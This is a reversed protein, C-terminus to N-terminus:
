ALSNDVSKSCTPEKILSKLNYPACFQELFSNFIERNLDGLVIFNDYKSSYFDIRRGICHLPDTILNTNPNYSCSLLWKRLRLNIEVFFIEIPKEPTYEKLIKCPIDERVYLLLGGGNQNRDLRFPTSYVKIIFQGSPFYSDLKTESILFIDINDKIIEELM